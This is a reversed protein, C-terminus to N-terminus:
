TDYSLDKKSRPYFVDSRLVYKQGRIIPLSEHKLEHIFLLAMGKKPHILVDNFKTEGGEFNANLYVMFTLRSEHGNVKVRGDIHRKFRQEKDYRYFRFTENLGMPLSNDGVVPFIAHLRNYLSQALNKDQYVVRYNNRLGKIMKAGEPLSVTAEQYGKEESFNILEDCRTASLAAEITWINEACQMLIM